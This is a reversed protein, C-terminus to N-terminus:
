RWWRATYRWNATLARIQKERRLGRLKRLDRAVGVLCWAIFLFLTGEIAWFAASAM